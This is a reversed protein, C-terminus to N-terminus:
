FFERWGYGRALRERRLIVDDGQDVALGVLRQAPMQGAVAQCGFLIAFAVLQLGVIRHDGLIIRFRTPLHRM